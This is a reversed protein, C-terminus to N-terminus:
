ICRVQGIINQITLMLSEINFPKQIYDEIGIEISKLKLENNMISSLMLLPIHSTQNDSKLKKCMEMGDMVPMFYDTIILEPRFELAFEMGKKGNEAEIVQYKESFIDYLFSRLDDNDEVILILPKEANLTNLKNFEHNM